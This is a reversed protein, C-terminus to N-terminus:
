LPGSQTAPAKAAAPALEQQRVPQGPAGPCIQQEQHELFHQPQQARVQKSQRGKAMEATANGHGQAVM